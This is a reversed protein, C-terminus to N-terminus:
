LAIRQTIWCPFVPPRRDQADSDCRHPPTHHVFPNQYRHVAARGRIARQGFGDPQRAPEIGLQDNSVHDVVTEDPVVDAIEIHAAEHLQQPLLALLNDGAAEVLGLLGPHPRPRQEHIIRQRGEVNSQGDLLRRAFGTGLQQHEARVSPATNPTQQQAANGFANRPM